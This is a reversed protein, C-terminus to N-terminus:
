FLYFNLPQGDRPRVKQFRAILRAQVVTPLPTFGTNRLQQDGKLLTWYLFQLTDRADGATAPQADVLVYTTITIPWARPEPQNLLSASENSQTHLESSLAAQKFSDPTAAVYNGSRNLLKVGSLKHQMVRDSSVYGIAGATEQVAKVMGDNGEAKVTSGPWKVLAGSGLRAQWTPSVASLYRTLAETTSSKEARVVRTVAQSPLSVGPNLAAIRADNWQTIDGALVAALVEGNLRLSNASGFGRLNVVPVIGGIATPFQILRHEALEAESLPTDTGGFDVQRLAMQQVGDNSGTPRYSVKVGREKEYASAWSKYVESPFTAGAGHVEGAHAWPAAFTAAAALWACLVSASCSPIPSPVSSYGTLSGRFVLQRFMM